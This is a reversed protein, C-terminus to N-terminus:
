SLDLFKFHVANIHHDKKLQKTARTKVTIQFAINAIHFHSNSRPLEQGSNTQASVLSATKIHKVAKNAGRYAERELIFCIYM